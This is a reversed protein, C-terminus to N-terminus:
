DVKPLRGNAQPCVHFVTGCLWSEISVRVSFYLSLIKLLLFLFIIALNYEFYKCKGMLLRYWAQVRTSQILDEFNTFHWKISQCWKIYLFKTYFLIAPIDHSCSYDSFLNCKNILFYTVNTISNSLSFRIECCPKHQTTSLFSFCLYISSFM